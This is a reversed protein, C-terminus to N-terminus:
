PRCLITAHSLIIRARLAAAARRRRWRHLPRAPARPGKSQCLLAFLGLFQVACGTCGLRGRMPGRDSRSTEEQQGEVRRLPVGRGEVCRGPAAVVGSDHGEEKGRHGRAGLDVRAVGGVLPAEGSCMAQSAWGPATRAMSCFTGAAAAAAAVAPAPSPPATSGAATCCCCGATLGGAAAAPPQQLRRAGGAAPGGASTAGLRLSCPFVLICRRRRRAAPVAAHM